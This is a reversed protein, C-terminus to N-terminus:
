AGRATGAMMSTRNTVLAPRHVRDMVEAMIWITMTVWGLPIGEALDVGAVVEWVEQLVEVMLNDKAILSDM